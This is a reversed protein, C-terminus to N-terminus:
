EKLNSFEKQFYNSYRRIESDSLGGLRMIKITLLAYQEPSIKNEKGILSMIDKFIELLYKNDKNNEIEKFIYDEKM